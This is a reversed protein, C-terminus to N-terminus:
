WNKMEEELEDMSTHEGADVRARAEAIRKILDSKDMPAGSGTLDESTYDKAVQLLLELLELEGNDIFAKM